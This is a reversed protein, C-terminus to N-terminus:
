KKFNVSPASELEVLEYIKGETLVFQGSRTKELKVMNPQAQNKDYYYASYGGVSMGFILVVALCTVQKM